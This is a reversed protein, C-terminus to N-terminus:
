RWFYYNDEYRSIPNYYRNDIGNLNRFEFKLFSNDSIKYDLTLRSLSLGTLDNQLRSSYEKGMGSNVYPSYQMKIDASVNIRDSIKYNMSNIYSTVAINGFGTSIMSVQISHTMSFNKPNFIGLILSNTSKNLNIKDKGPEKFQGFSICSSFVFIIIILFRIRM